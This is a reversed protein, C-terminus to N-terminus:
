TPYIGHRSSETNQWHSQSTNYVHRSQFCGFRCIRFQMNVVQAILGRHLARWTIPLLSLRLRARHTPPRCSPMPGHIFLIHALGRVATCLYRCLYLLSKSWEKSSSSPNAANLNSGLPIPKGESMLLFMLISIVSTTSELRAITDNNSCISFFDM